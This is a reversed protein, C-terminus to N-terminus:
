DIGAQTWLTRVPSADLGPDFCEAAVCILPRVSCEEGICDIGPAPFLVAPSPAIAGHPSERRSHMNSAVPSGNVVNLRYLHNKGLSTACDAVAQADATFGVFFIQDDFTLSDALIKENDPLTLMWGRDDNGITTRTSGDVEVLDATTIVSYNDFDQQSLPKFVDPDRISFFRDSASDDFPHARYGSGISIAMFRKQQQIDTILSVDPANYFRRTQAASPKSRVGNAGLQAIVGGAILRNASQGNSVDFRWIQGGLDSAYMRDAFGDGNLDIVRVQNPIARDMRRGMANLPLNAGADPGARWLREGSVLDLVYIGAGSGDAGTPHSATDHVTDYGGGIVVVAQDANQLEGAVHMRSISPTSWSEGSEKSDFVWLLSPAEKDTVDLAFYAQGGRRMGFILYVFDGDEAEIQGDRDVDKIVPVIDGDLGYDKHETDPDFYLRSLNPLLQEPVFAWLERGDHGAIAHLFGDNTATFIVTDPAGAEGGYVVAASQSHLSDGITNVTRAWTVLEELSPEGAAGTLGLDSPRLADNGNAIANGAASLTSSVINSFLNRTASAPIVQAATWDDSLDNIRGNEIRHKSLKGPWHSNARIEFTSVYVDSLHRTRNLADIAVIPKTFTMSTNLSCTDSEDGVASDATNETIGTRDLMTGGHRSMWNLYNGDYITYSRNRPASGWSLADQVNNSFPDSVNTGAAPWRYISRGDGHSGYDALCEVPSNAHGSALYQWRYPGISSGDHGGNRYQALMNRSSGRTMLQGTAASCLFDDKDIINSTTSCDPIVDVDTWYNVDNDCSGAYFRGSDYPQNAALQELTAASTGPGSNTALHAVTQPNGLLLETDDAYASQGLMFVVCTLVCMPQAITM